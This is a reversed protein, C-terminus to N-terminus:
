VGAFANFVSGVALLIDADLINQNVPGFSTPQITVVQAVALAMPEVPTEGQLLKSCWVAGPSGVAWGAATGYRSLAFQIAAQKVRSVFAPDSGFASVQAYTATTTM